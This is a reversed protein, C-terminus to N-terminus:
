KQINKILELRKSAVFELLVKGIEEHSKSKIPTNAGDDGDNHISLVAFEENIEFRDDISLGFFDKFCQRSPIVFSEEIKVGLEKAADCMVALCCRCGDDGRMIGEAKKDNEIVKWAAYELNNLQKETM